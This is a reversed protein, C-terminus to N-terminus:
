VDTGMCLLYYEGDALANPAIAEGATVTGSRTVMIKGSATNGDDLDADIKKAISTKVHDTCIIVTGPLGAIPSHDHGTIGVMGGEENKAPYNASNPDTAGQLLDAMRLHQWVLYSESATTTDNWNGDIVGNGLACKSSAPACTTAHALYSAANRVNADDGPLAKFQHQYERLAHATRHLGGELLQTRRADVAMKGRMLSGLLLGGFLLLLGVKIPHMPKKKRTM